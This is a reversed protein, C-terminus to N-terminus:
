KELLYLGIINHNEDYTKIILDMHFIDKPTFMIYELKSTLNDFFYNHLANGDLDYLIIRIDTLEKSAHFTIRTPFRRFGTVLGGSFFNLDSLLEERISLPYGTVHVSFDGPEWVNNNINPNKITMFPSNMYWFRNLLKEEIVNVFPKFQPKEITIRCQRGEYDHTNIPLSKPWDPANWIDSLIQNGIEDNKVFFHSTIVMNTDQSNKVPHDNPEMSHSPLIFSFKEDLFDELKKTTDMILCDSDMFFVWKFNETEFINLAVKIKQWQSDRDDYKIGQRDIWLTYGHLKCYKRINNHVTIEAINEYKEDYSVLFCIDKPNMNSKELTGLQSFSAPSIRNITTSKVSNM